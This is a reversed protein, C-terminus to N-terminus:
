EMFTQLIVVTNHKLLEIGYGALKKIREQDKRSGKIRGDKENKEIKM